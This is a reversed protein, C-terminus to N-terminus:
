ADDGRAEDPLDAVPTVVVDQARWDLAVIDSRLKELEDLKVRGRRPVIFVEIHFVHGMDRMRVGSARVWRHLMTRTLVADILPEPKTSDFTRARQDMLDSVAARVNRVGDMVIGASIFLAAASDLWWLGIGVGLVGVITALSTTWDAKAMDADAHLAKDHLVPALRAKQRGHILPGIAVVVMVAIMLWGLWITQGFLRVSGISPHEVMILSSASDVALIAGVTFLAVGSVLHGVAMARHRGYPFRGSPPRRVFRLAILFALQSVLTLMDEIWAAKMAQSGGVVFAVLVIGVGTYAITFWEWFVAKRLAESQERPLETRGLRHTM